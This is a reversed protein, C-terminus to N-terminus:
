QRAMPHCGSDDVASHTRIPECASYSLSTPQNRKTVCKLKWRGRCRDGAVRPPAERLGSVPTRMCASNEAHMPRPAPRDVKDPRFDRCRPSSMAAQFQAPRIARDASGDRCTAVIDGTGFNTMSPMTRHTTPSSSRWDPGSGISIRRPKRGILDPLDGYLKLGTVAVERHGERNGAGHEHSECGDGAVRWKQHEVTAEPLGPTRAQICASIEAHMPRPGPPHASKDSSARRPHM